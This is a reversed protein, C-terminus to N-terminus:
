NHYKQLGCYFSDRTLQLHWMFSGNLCQYYNMEKDKHREATCIATGIYGHTTSTFLHKSIFPISYSSNGLTHLNWIFQVFIKLPCGRRIIWFLYKKLYSVNELLSHTIICFGILSVGWVMSLDTDALMIFLSLSCCLYKM